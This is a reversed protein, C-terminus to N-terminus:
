PAAEIEIRLTVTEYPKLRVILPSLNSVIELVKDETQNMIAAARVRVPVTVEVTTARGVFEQLRIVFVTSARPNLPNASVEGHTTTDAVQKVTVIEVNPHNVMFYGRESAVPPVTVYSARLPLNFESGLRWAAVDDFDGNSVNVAYDFVYQQDM